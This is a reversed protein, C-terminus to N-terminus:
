ARKRIIERDDAEQLVVHPRAGAVQRADRSVGSFNFQGLLQSLYSVEGRLTETAASSQEAMAANQQTIQDISAITSSVERLGVSQDKANTVIVGVKGHIYDIDSVIEKLKAGTQGVLDVGHKVQNDSTSILAKIEKAAQASRQALERVEQAVVAFGRGAEGARAAEVGANLALLNTQFAIEDIVGIISNIKNSSHEIEAMAEIAATVIQGSQEAGRYTQDVRKGVEAAIEAAETVSSSLEAIAAATEEISSAQHETRRSLDNAADTIESAGNALSFASENFAGLTNALNTVSKNFDTRLRDLSGAFSMELKVAMNGTSLQQLAHGLQSVAEELQREREANAAEQDARDKERESASLRAEVELRAKTTNADQLVALSRTLDGLEDRDNMGALEIQNRGAAIEKTAEVIRSLRNRFGISLAIGTVILLLAASAVIGYSVNQMRFLTAYVKAKPASVIAYWTTNSLVQVPVALALDPTGDQRPAEVLTGASKVINKLADTESNVGNISKGLLTRNPHAVIIGTETVLSVFGDDFPKLQSLSESLETLGLDIGTVGAVKGNLLIPASISAVLVDKGGIRYQRPDLLFESKHKAPMMYRDGAGSQNYDALVSRIISNGSRAWYPLLRGTSDHSPASAFDKDKGDFVNPEWGSWVAMVQKNDLLVRQLQKDIQNRRTIGYERSAELVSRMNSVLAVGTKLTGQIRLANAGAINTMMEASSNSIHSASILAMIGAAAVTTALGLGVLKINNKAIATRAFM